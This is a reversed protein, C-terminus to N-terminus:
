IFPLVGFRNAVNELINRRTNNFLSMSPYRLIIIKEIVSPSSAHAGDLIRCFTKIDYRIRILCSVAVGHTISYKGTLKYM